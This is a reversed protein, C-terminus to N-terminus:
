EGRGEEMVKGSKRLVGLMVLRDWIEDRVLVAERKFHLGDLYVLTGCNNALLMEYVRRRLKTGDDLRAFYEADKTADCPPLLFQMVTAQREDGALTNNDADPLTNATSVLRQEVAKPHFGISFPNDRLDLTELARLMSLVATTKRLRALRNGAVHLENLSKINLLPRLDKIANFNLNLSRLNPLSLGFDGPLEQLGCSALELTSLSFWDHPLTLASIHNESLCLTNLDRMRAELIPLLDCDGTEPRQSRM